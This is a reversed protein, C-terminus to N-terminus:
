RAIVPKDGNLGFNATQVAGDFSRLIYWTGDSPRFLAIDTRNDGDYNGAVPIDGDLGFRVARFEGNSSFLTYWIGTSPRYVTIDSRGDGDFDGRVPIDGDLGFRAAGTQGDSSRLWYWIGTSPRYVAIDDRGDGDIDLAIPEDGALGFRVITFGTGTSHKVYWVGTSPRFVALDNIGDGDFDGRAPIDSAFGFQEATVGSDSSRRLQWIGLGGDNRFVATDTRGDGDYDASVVRDAASGFETASFGAGNLSYWVGNSPRFVAFDGLGDGDFDALNSRRILKGRIEGGPHNASTIVVSWLGARIQSVQAPTVDMTIAAFSGNTGGVVGLDRVVGGDGLLAEIRAGTQNSGLNHFEGFITAQTETANLTVKLEGSATTQVPNPVGAGTLNSEFARGLAPSPSPSPSATPSPSPGPSGTPSPSVTPSPSPSPGTFGMFTGNLISSGGNRVSITSGVVVPPVTQGNDTRLRLRGEGGDLFMSGANINDVVVALQTGSPLNIQNVRVELELRSSHIEFQAFGNPLIGNITGGTLGAFLDGGNPSGTPSPSPNPSGTPSPSPTGNPSGTPSPSPTGNPSGTPSPSPTGNPSGTPSPSPSACPSASPSPSPSGGPSGSPSPSATGFTGAIVVTAGSSVQVPSGSAIVPVQQGDDTRRRFFFTGCQSVTTEGTVANNISVTLVTGPPLNISSGEVDLRRRDQDDVRYEAFGRPTVNDIPAGTLNAGIRIVDSVLAEASATRDGLAFPIIVWMAILAAVAGFRVLNRNGKAQKIKM